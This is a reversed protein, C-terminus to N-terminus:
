VGATELLLRPLPLFNYYTPFVKIAWLASASAGPGDCYRTGNPILTEFMKKSFLLVYKKEKKSENM